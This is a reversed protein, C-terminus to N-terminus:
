EDDDDDDTTQRATIGNSIGDEDDDSVQPSLLVSVAFTVAAIVRHENDDAATM